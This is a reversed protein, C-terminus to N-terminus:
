SKKGKLKLKSTESAGNSSNTVKAKAKLKGKAALAKRAKNSLKVKVKSTAGPPVSYNAKGLKKAKARANGTNSPLKGTLLVTGECNVTIGPELNCAIPVLANKGKVKANGGVGVGTTGGFLDPPKCAQPPENSFRINDVFVASDYISDGSDFISLYVTHPGPPAAVKTTLVTTGADYTTGTANAADVATPGVSDVSVKDGAPAAFDGPAAIVNSTVSWNTTDLEAIFADNFGANVYEPFEESLFKYDFSICNDNPPVTVPVGLTTPDNAEGRAPNSYGFGYGSNEFDNPDDALEVDGSTLITFTGGATPFGGFPSDAIGDQFPPGFSAHDLTAGSTPSGTIAEALDNADESPTIAASATAATAMVAAAALPIALAARRRGQRLLGFGTTSM